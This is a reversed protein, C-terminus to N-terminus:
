VIGRVFEVPTTITRQEISTRACVREGRLRVEEILDRRAAWPLPELQAQFMGLGQIFAYTGADSDPLYWPLDLSRVRVERLGAEEFLRRVEGPGFSPISVPTHYRRAIDFVPKFWDRFWAMDVPFRGPSCVAVAGGPRTVRRMEALARPADTWHLFAVGVAADFSAEEFPLAEASAVRFAVNAAGERQARARAREIMGPAADIGVLEGTPGVAAWLGGDFMQAASGCGCELCRAGPRVKAFATFRKRFAGIGPLFARSAADWERFLNFQSLHMLDIRRRLYGSDALARRLDAFLRRGPATNEVYRVGDRLAIRYTGTALGALLEPELTQMAWPRHRLGLVFDEEPLGRYHDVASHNDIFTLVGHGLVLRGFGEALIFREVATRAESAADATVRLHGVTAHGRAAGTATMIEHLAVRGLEWPLARTGAVETRSASGWHAAALRAVADAIIQQAGFEIHEQGLGGLWPDVVLDHALFARLAAM